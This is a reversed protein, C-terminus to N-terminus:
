TAHSLVTGSKGDFLHCHEPAIRLGIRQGLPYSAYGRVHARFITGASRVDVVSHGGLPEVEYIEGEFHGVQGSQADVHLDEPRVAATVQPSDPMDPFPLEIRRDASVFRGGALHGAITNIRPAGVMEAVFLSNPRNYIEHPTGVQVVRGERLIAIRDAISMAEEQDHTVYVLTHNMERQLRKLEVRTTERLRADLAAIPEDMLYAKPDRVLARAIAVRQREGGSLHAPLKHLLHGIHLKAAVEEVRQAARAKAWSRERLPFAINQGASLHPFLALNQFVMGLDRERPREMTVDVDDILVRGEDPV